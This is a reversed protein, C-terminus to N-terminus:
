RRIANSTVALMSNKIPQLFSEPSEEVTILSLLEDYEIDSLWPPEFMCLELELLPAEEVATVPEESLDLVVPFEVAAEELVVVGTELGNLEETDIQTVSENVSMNSFLTAGEALDSLISIL